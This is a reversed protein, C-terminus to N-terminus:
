NLLTCYFYQFHYAGTSILISTRFEPGSGCVNAVTVTITYVTDLTLGTIIYSTQEILTAVQLGGGASTWTITYITTLSDDVADWQVVVSSSEINKM